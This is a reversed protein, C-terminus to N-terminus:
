EVIEIYGVLYLLRSCWFPLKCERWTNSLYNTLFSKTMLGLFHYDFFEEYFHKDTQLPPKWSVTQGNPLSSPGLALDRDWLRTEWPLVTPKMLNSHKIETSRIHEHFPLIPVYNKCWTHIMVPPMLWLWHSIWM